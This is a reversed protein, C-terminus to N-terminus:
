RLVLVFFVCFAFGSALRMWSMQAPINRRSSGPLLHSYFTSPQSMVGKHNTTTTTTTTTKFHYKPANSRKTPLTVLGPARAGELLYFRSPGPSALTGAAATQKRQTLANTVLSSTLNQGDRNGSCTCFHELFRQMGVICFVYSANSSEKPRSTRGHGCQQWAWHRVWSLRMGLSRPLFRDVEGLGGQAQSHELWASSGNRCQPTACCVVVSWGGLCSNMSECHMHSCLGAGDCSHCSVAFWCFCSVVHHLSFQAM